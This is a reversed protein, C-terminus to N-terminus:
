LLFVNKTSLPCIVLNCQPSRQWSDGAKSCIVLSRATNIFIFYPDRLQIKLNRKCKITLIGKDMGFLRKKNFYKM